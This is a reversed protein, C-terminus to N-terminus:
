RYAITKRLVRPAVVNELMDHIRRRMRLAHNVRYQIKDRFNPPKTSPHLQKEQYFMSDVRQM